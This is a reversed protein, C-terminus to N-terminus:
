NREPGVPGTRECLSDSCSHAWRNTPKLASGRLPGAWGVPFGRFSLARGFAASDGRGPGTRAKLAAKPPNAPEDHGEQHICAADFSLRDVRALEHKGVRREAIGDHLVGGLRSCALRSCALRSSPRSVCAHSLDRQAGDVIGALCAGERM